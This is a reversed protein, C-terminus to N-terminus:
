QTMYQWIKFIKARNTTARAGSLTALQLHKLISSGFACILPAKVGWAHWKHASKASLGNFSEYNPLRLRSDALGQM